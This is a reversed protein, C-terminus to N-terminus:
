WNILEALAWTAELGTVPYVNNGSVQSFDKTNFVCVPYSLPRLSVFTIDSALSFKWLSHFHKEM